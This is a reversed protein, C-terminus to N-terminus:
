PSQANARGWVIEAKGGGSAAPNTYKMEDGTLTVIRKQDTGDWNPFTSREIHFNLIHDALASLTTTGASPM